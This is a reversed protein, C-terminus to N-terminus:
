APNTNLGQLSQAGIYSWHGYNAFSIRIEYFDPASVLDDEFAFEIDTHEAWTRAHQAVLAHLETM